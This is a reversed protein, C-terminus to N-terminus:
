KTCAKFAVGQIVETLRESSGDLRSRNKKASLLLKFVM